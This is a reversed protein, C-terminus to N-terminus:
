GSRSATDAYNSSGIFFGLLNTLRISVICNAMLITVCCVKMPSRSRGLRHFQHLNQNKAKQHTKKKQPPVCFELIRWRFAPPSLERKLDGLNAM